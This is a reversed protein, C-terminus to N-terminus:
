EGKNSLVRIQSPLLKQSLFIEYDKDTWREFTLIQNGNIYEWYYFKESRKSDCRKYFIASDSENYRFRRDKYIFEGEEDYDHKELMSKITEPFDSLSLKELVISVNVNDDEEVEVWIKDGEGKDCELEYWFFDGSRYLNRSLVKLTINESNSGIGSLEFIGGKDVNSIHLANEPTKYINQKIISNRKFIIFILVLSLGLFLANLGVFPISVALILIILIIAVQM